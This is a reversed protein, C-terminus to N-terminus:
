PRYSNCRWYAWNKIRPSTSVRIFWLDFIRPERLSAIWGIFHIVLAVGIVWFAKFVLFLETTVVLNLIVVTYSVGAFTQPRTLAVFLRDREIRPPDTAM